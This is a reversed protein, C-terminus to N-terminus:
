QERYLEVASPYRGNDNLFTRQVRYATLAAFLCQLRWSSIDPPDLIVELDPEAGNADWFQQTIRFPGIQDGQVDDKIGSRLEAVTMLYHPNVGLFLGHEACEKAFTQRNPIPM